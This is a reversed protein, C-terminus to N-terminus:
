RGTYYKCKNCKIKQLVHIDIQLEAALKCTECTARNKGLCKLCECTMGTTDAMNEDYGGVTAGCDRLCEIENAM